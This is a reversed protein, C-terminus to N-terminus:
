IKKLYCLAPLGSIGDTIRRPNHDIIKKAVCQSAVNDLGVVAEIYLEAGPYASSFGYKLEAMGAALIYQARGRGRESERVAIGVQFVPLKNEFRVLVFNAFSIVVKENICVYTFRKHYDDIEDAYMFVDCYLASKSCFIENNQIAKEFSVMAMMPDTLKPM